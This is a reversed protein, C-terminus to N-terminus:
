QKGINFVKTDGTHTYYSTLGWTVNKISDIINCENQGDYTHLSIRACMHSANPKEGSILHSPTVLERVDLWDDLSTVLCADAPDIGFIHPSRGYLVQFPSSALASHWTTNYWFEALHLWQFWQKPFAHVFCRLFTELCQNVRETQGDRQPHYASSM